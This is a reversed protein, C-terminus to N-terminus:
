ESFIAQFSGTTDNLDLRTTDAAPNASDIVIKRTNALTQAVTDLLLRARYVTPSAEYAARQAAFSNAKAQESLGQEWRYARAEQLIRAAEGGASELLGEIEAEQGAVDEAPEGLQRMVRLASIAEAIELARDRSGAVEALTGIADKRANELTAAVEQRVSLQSMFADAVEENTPPRVATISADVIEVGLGGRYGADLGYSDAARQIAIRLSEAADGSPDALLDNIERNATFANLQQSAIYTLLRSPNASSKLFAEVGDGGPDSPLKVRYGLTMTISVLEGAASDAGGLEDTGPIPTPASVFFTEGTDDLASTWLLANEGENAGILSGVTLQEVRAANVRSVGGFPWPAKFHLGPGVPEGTIAGNFTIIARQQPQVLVVCSLLLFILIAVICLPAVLRSLLSFFWSRSVEFGFQYNLTESVIKGLSEPRTLWGLIRSDFAPRLAEDGKRPRYLGLVLSLLIELGQLAMLVPIAISLAAFATRDGGQFYQVLCAVALLVMLVADGLLYGAGGRLPLWAKEVTMGAVYRAVLFMLLGAIIFLGALPAVIAQESIAIGLLPTVDVPEGVPRAIYSFNVLALVVGLVILYAAMLGSTAGLGLNTLTDLRRKALRLNQGAEDFLAAAQADDAALQEAELAERREQGHAQFLAWLVFWIPIGGIAHWTAAHIAASQAYLGALGIVVSLLLQAALGVLAASAARQYARQDLSM